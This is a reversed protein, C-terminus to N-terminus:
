DLRAFSFCTSWRVKNLCHYDEITIQRAIEEPSFDVVSCQTAPKNPLQGMMPLPNGEMPYLDKADLVDLFPAMTDSGLTPVIVSSLLTTLQQNLPSPAKFDMPYSKVWAFLM